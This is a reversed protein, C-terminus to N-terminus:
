ARCKLCIENDFYCVTLCVAVFLSSCSKSCCISVTYLYHATCCRLYYVTCRAPAFLLSYPMHCWKAFQVAHLLLYCSYPKHCCIAVIRYAAVFLLHIAHPLTQDFSSPWASRPPRSCAPGIAQLTWHVLAIIESQRTYGEAM